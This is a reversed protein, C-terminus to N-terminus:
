VTGQAGSPPQSQCTAEQGVGQGVLAGHQLGDLAVHLLSNHVLHGADGARGQHRGQHTGHPQAMPTPQSVSCVDLQKGFFGM